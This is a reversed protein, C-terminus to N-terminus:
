YDQCEACDSNYPFVKELFNQLLCKLVEQIDQDSAQLVCYRTTCMVLNLKIKM